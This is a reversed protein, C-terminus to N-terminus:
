FDDNGIRWLGVGRLFDSYEHQADNAEKIAAEVDGNVHQGDLKRACVLSLACTAALMEMNLRAEKARLKAREETRERDEKASKRERAAVAEIVAVVILTAGSIVPGLWEM